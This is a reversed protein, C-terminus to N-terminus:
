KAFGEYIQKIGALPLLLFASNVLKGIKKNYEWARPKVICYKKRFLARFLAAM